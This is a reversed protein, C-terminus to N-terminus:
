KHASEIAQVLFETAGEGAASDYYSVFRPDNLYGQVLGLYEQEKYGNGWHIAIWKEHMRALEQAAESQPDQTQLAIRLHVKIADELLEKAEWEDKTLAMMRENSADITADGYREHQGHSVEWICRLTQRLTLTLPSWKGSLCNRSSRRKTKLSARLHAVASSPM